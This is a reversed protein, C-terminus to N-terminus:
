LLVMKHKTLRTLTKIHTLFSLKIGKGYSFDQLAQRNSVSVEESVGARTPSLSKRSIFPEL